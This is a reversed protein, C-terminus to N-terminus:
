LVVSLEVIDAQAYNLCISSPPLMVIFHFFKIVSSLFKTAEPLENLAFIPSCSSRTIAVNNTTLIATDTAVHSSLIKSLSLSESVSIVIGIGINM